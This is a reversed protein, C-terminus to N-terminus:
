GLGGGRGLGGEASVKCRQPLPQQEPQQEHQETQTPEPLARDGSSAPEAEGVGEVWERRWPRGDKVLSPTEGTEMAKLTEM